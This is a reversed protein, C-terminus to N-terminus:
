ALDGREEDAVDGREEDSFSADQPREEESRSYADGAEDPYDRGSEEGTYGSGIEAGFGSDQGYGGPQGFNTSSDSQRHSESDPSEDQGRSEREIDPDGRTEHQM